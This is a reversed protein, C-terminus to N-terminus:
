EHGPGGPLFAHGWGAAGALGADDGLAAGVVEVRVGSPGHTRLHQRIPELLLDGVRGLGGGIVVVEPSYLQAVNGVGIAAAQVLQAWLGAAVDDGARVRQVVEPAGGEIGADAARRALATGSALAELTAPEERAAASQDIVMHGVEALSRRGHVLRGDLMVGAGVGTSFTLYVIDRFGRGAGFCAEGVAALDADNALAVPIRLVGSLEAETLVPIWSAPLNPAHELRGAGYEVRGPVGIVACRPVAPDLMGAILRILADPCAAKRPTPEARRALVTGGPGVVAVRMRTGGLDVAVVPGTMPKRRVAGPVPESVTM